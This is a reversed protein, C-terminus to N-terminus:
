CAPQLERVQPAASQERLQSAVQVAVRAYARIRAVEPEDDDIMLSVLLENVGLDRATHALLLLNVPDATIGNAELVYDLSKLRATTTHTDTIM